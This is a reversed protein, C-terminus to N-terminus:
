KAVAALKKLLDPVDASDCNGPSSIFYRSVHEILRFLSLQKETQISNICKM